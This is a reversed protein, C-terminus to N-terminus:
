DILPQLIHRMALAILNGSPFLLQGARQLSRVISTGCAEGSRACAQRPKQRLWDKRHESEGQMSM